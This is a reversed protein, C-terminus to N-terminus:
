RTSCRCISSARGARAREPRARGQAPVLRRLRVGAQLLVRQPQSAHGQLVPADGRPQRRGRAQGLPRGRQRVRGQARPVHQERVQADRRHPHPDGADRGRCRRVHGAHGAREARRGRRARHVRRRLLRRGREGRAPVRPQLRRRLGRGGAQGVRQELVPTLEREVSGPLMTSRQVVVTWRGSAAIAWGVESCARKVHDLNLSGDEASPTGVCVLVIDAERMAEAIRTTARLRGADRSSRILDALGNEVIPSEGREICDVKYANTDVGTVSHGRTALCASCVSGVYGLGVVVVNM